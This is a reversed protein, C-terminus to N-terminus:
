LDVDPNDGFFVTCGVPQCSPDGNSLAAPFVNGAGFYRFGGDGESRQCATGGAVPARVCGPTALAVAFVPWDNVDVPVGISFGAGAAPCREAIVRVAPYKSTGLDTGADLAIARIRPGSRIPCVIFKTSCPSGADDLVNQAANCQAANCNAMSCQSRDVVELGGFADALTDVQAPPGRSVFYVGPGSSTLFATLALLQAATM